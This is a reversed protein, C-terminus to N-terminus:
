INACLCSLSKAPMAGGFLDDLADDPLARIDVVHFERDDSGIMILHGEM